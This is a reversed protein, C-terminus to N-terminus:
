TVEAIKYDYATAIFPMTGTHNTENSTHRLSLEQLHSRQTGTSLTPPKTLDQGAGRLLTTGWGWPLACVHGLAWGCSTRDREGEPWDPPACPSVAAKM